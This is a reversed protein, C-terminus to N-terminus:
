DRVRVRLVTPWEHAEVTRRGVTTPKVALLAMGLMIQQKALKARGGLIIWRSLDGTSEPTIMNQQFHKAFGEYSLQRPWVKIRPRDGKCIDGLGPLVRELMAEVENIDVDADQGAPAVVVLRLRVPVGEVRLQRDGTSPTPPPYTALNEKLDPEVPEIKKKRPALSKLIRLLILLLILAAIGLIVYWGQGQVFDRASGEPIMKVLWDPPTKFLNTITEM